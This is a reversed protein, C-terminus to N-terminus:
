NYFIHMALVYVHTTELAPIDGTTRPTNFFYASFYLIKNILYQLNIFFFTLIFIWDKSASVVDSVRCQHLLLQYFVTQTYM